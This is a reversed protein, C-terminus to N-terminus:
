VKRIFAVSDHTDVTAAIVPSSREDSSQTLAAPNLSEVVTTMLLGTTAIAALGSVLTRVRPSMETSM